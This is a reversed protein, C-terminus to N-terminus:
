AEEYVQGTIREFAEADLAGSAAQERALAVIEARIDADPVSDLTRSGRRICRFYIPTIAHM